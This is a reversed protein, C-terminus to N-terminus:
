RWFWWGFSLRERFTTYCPFSGKIQSYEDSFTGSPDRVVLAPEIFLGPGFEFSWGLIIENLNVVNDLDTCNYTLGIQFMSLGMFPGKRWPFYVLMVGVEGLFSPKNMSIVAPIRIQFEDSVMARIDMEIQCSGKGLFIDQISAIDAAVGLRGSAALPVLALAVLATIFVIRRPM